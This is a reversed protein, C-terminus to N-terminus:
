GPWWRWIRGKRLRAFNVAPVQGVWRSCVTPGLERTECLQRIPGTRRRRLRHVTWLKHFIVGCRFIKANEEQCAAHNKTVIVTPNHDGSWWNHENGEHARQQSLKSADQSQARKGQAQPRKVELPPWKGKPRNWRSAAVHAAASGVCIEVETQECCSALWSSSRQGSHTGSFSDVCKTSRQTHRSRACVPSQAGPPTFEPTTEFAIPM